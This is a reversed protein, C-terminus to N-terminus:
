GVGHGYAHGCQHVSEFGYDYVDDHDHDHDMMIMIMIMIANTMTITMILDDFRYDDFDPDFDLPRDCDYGVDCHARSCAVMM